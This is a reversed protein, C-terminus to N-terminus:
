NSSPKQVFEHFNVLVRQVQVDVILSKKRGM